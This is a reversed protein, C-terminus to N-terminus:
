NTKEKAGLIEAPLYPKVIEKVDNELENFIIREFSEESFTNKLLDLVRTCSNYISTMYEKLVEKYYQIQIKDRPPIDFKEASEIIKIASKIRIISNMFKLVVEISEVVNQPNISRPISQMEVRIRESIDKIHGITREFKM